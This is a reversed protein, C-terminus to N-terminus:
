ELVEYVRDKGLFRFKQKFKKYDYRFEKVLKLDDKYQDNMIKIKKQAEIKNWSKLHLIVYKVDLEKLSKISSRSPFGDFRKRLHRTDSPIFGSYGNVIKKKHFLSFYMYTSERGIPTLFPLEIIPFDGPKEKLWLYTPPIDKKVPVSYMRQPISLYEINLFLLLAIIIFVKLNKSKIRGLLYSLGYGAMVVVCFIVFVAYRSPVRIGKFGPFFHYMFKFPLPFIANKDGLVSFYKGLSLLFAWLGILLYLYFNKNETSLLFNKKVSANIFPFLIYLIGVFLIFLAPKSINHISFSQDGWHFELGGTVVAVIIFLSALSVLVLVTLKVGKPPSYFLNRKKFVFFGALLLAIMGPFLFHEPKGLPTLIRSFLRNHPNTALYNAVDAGEEMFRKFGYKKFVNLYPLSFVFLVLSSLIFPFGLKFLFNLHLRQKYILFFVPIAICLISIFFLGYYLCALSQTTFFVSFLISNKLKQDQFYKHLYLFALPILGSSLLQLHTIHHMHFTNFAFMIGCAIGAIDSQTLYRIFLFMCYAILIYSLLLLFNYTLIPNNFIVYLPLSIIAQPFLHESFSLTNSHPYFVDANFLNVPDSFFHSQVWTIIWTNLFGDMMANLRNSPHFSLPSLHLFTLVTFLFFAAFKIKTDKNM